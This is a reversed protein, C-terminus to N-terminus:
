FGPPEDPLAMTLDPQGFAADDFDVEPLQLEEEAEIAMQALERNRARSIEDAAVEEEERRNQNLVHLMEVDRSAAEAVYDLDGLATQATALSGVLKQVEADDQAGKLQANLKAIQQSLLRRKNQAKGITTEFRAFAKEVAHFRKLPDGPGRLSAVGDFVDTADDALRTWRNMDVPEFLAQATASLEIGEGALDVLEVLTDGIGSDEFYESFLGSDILGIAAVPDGIAQKVQNATELQQRVTQLTNGLTALKEAWQAQEWAYKLTDFINKQDQRVEMGPAAVVLQGSAIPVVFVSAAAAVLVSKTKM